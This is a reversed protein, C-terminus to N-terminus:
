AWSRLGSSAATEFRMRIPERWVFGQIDSTSGGNFKTRIGSPSLAKLEQVPMGTIALLFDVAELFIKPFNALSFGLTEIAKSIGQGHTRVDRLRNRIDTSWGL